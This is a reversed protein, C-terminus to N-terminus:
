LCAGDVQCTKKKEEFMMQDEATVQSIPNNWVHDVNYGLFCVAQCLGM